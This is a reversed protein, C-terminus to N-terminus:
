RRPKTSFLGSGMTEVKGRRFGPSSMTKIYHLWDEAEEKRVLRKGPHPPTESLRIDCGGQGTAKGELHHPFIQPFLFM